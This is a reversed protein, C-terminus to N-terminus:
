VRSARARNQKTSLEELRRYLTTKGIELLAAAIVKDGKAVKMARRIENKLTQRWPKVKARLERPIVILKDKRATTM